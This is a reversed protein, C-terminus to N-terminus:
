PIQWFVVIMTTLDENAEQLYPLNKKAISVEYLKITWYVFLTTYKAMFINRDETKRRSLMGVM